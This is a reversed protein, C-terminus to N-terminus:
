SFVQINDLLNKNQHINGIVELDCKDYDNLQADGSCKYCSCEGGFEFAFTLGNDCWMVAGFIYGGLIDGTYIDIGNKDQLGTFQMVDCDDITFNLHGFEIKGGYVDSFEFDVMKCDIKNWWSFKFNM